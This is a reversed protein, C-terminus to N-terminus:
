PHTETPPATPVSAPSTTTSPPAPLPTETFTLPPSKPKRLFKVLALAGVIALAATIAGNEEIWSGEGVSEGETEVVRDEEAYREAAPHLTGYLARHLDDLADDRPPKSSKTKTALAKTTMLNRGSSFARHLDEYPTM